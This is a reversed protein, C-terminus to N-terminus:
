EEIAVILSECYQCVKTLKAKDSNSDDTIQYEGDHAYGTWKCKSCKHTHPKEEEEARWSDESGLEYTVDFGGKRWTWLDDEQHIWPLEVGNASADDIVEHVSIGGSEILELKSALDQEDLDPYIESLLDADLDLAFRSNAQHAEHKVLTVM